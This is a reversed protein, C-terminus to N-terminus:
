RRAGCFGQAANGAEAAESGFRTTRRGEGNNEGVAFRVIGLWGIGPTYRIGMTSWYKSVGDVSGRRVLASSRVSSQITQTPLRPRSEGHRRLENKRLLDRFDFRRQLPFCVTLRWDQRLCM